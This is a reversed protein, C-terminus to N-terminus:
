FRYTWAAKMSTDNQVPRLHDLSTDYGENVIFYVENGPQVIWKLRLNVGLSDSFNDYQALLSLQLDPSFTYVANASALRVDFDGQPLRVQQLQWSVSSSFFRSARWEVLARYDRRHGTFFGLDRVTLAVSVPRSRTTSYTAQYREWTYNGVPIIVGSRIEFPTDLRERTHTHQLELRDGAHTVFELVPLDHDESVLRGTLDFTWFLQSALKVRDLLPSEPHWTYGASNFSEYVGTRPAFGLAPDFHEGIRQANLVVEFPENPYSLSFGYDSDRRGVFESDTAMLYFHGIFTKSGPLQTNLYNFDAGVLTNATNARPDGHTFIIGANSEGLVQVAARGVFLNKSDIGAHSDIQVDLLGLSLPGARGAIKLGGLIDVKSGDDALGIRRSFFPNATEPSLGGFSFLPGDQTFFARKEPFFLDFQSLNVQRQDVEADAFDTNVTLTTTLAPTVHWQLDFGPKFDNAKEAPRPDSRRTFSAFPKFELGHGQRLGRLGRIEGLDALSTTRKTRIYGAWRVAEQKRRIARAINFGWTDIAPDFSLSKVPIAFEASWGGADRSVRGLWLADWEKSAEEKNLVLGDHKGGAATLAFYYGDNQRHFTDFVIRILDDSDNDQDRQMSYARPGALGATDHARVAVFIYDANYTVWFETRETPDANELPIVQRFHDSHAAGEWEGPSIVGDIKPPTATAHVDLSPAAPLAAAGSLLLSILASRRLLLM